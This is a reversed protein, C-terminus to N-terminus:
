ADGETSLVAARGPSQRTPDGSQGPDTTSSGLGEKSTGGISDFNVKKQLADYDIADFDINLIRAVSKRIKSATTVSSSRYEPKASLADIVVGINEVRRGIAVSLEKLFEETTQQRVLLESYLTIKIFRNRTFWYDSDFTKALSRRMRELRRARSREGTSKQRTPHCLLVEGKGTYLWDPNLGNRSLQILVSNAPKTTGTEYRIWSRRSVGFESAAEAQTYGLLKRYQTLRDGIRINRPQRSSSKQEIASPIKRGESSLLQAMSILKRSLWDSMSLRINM